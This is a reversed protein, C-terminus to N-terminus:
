AKRKRGGRTSKGASTKGPSATEADRFYSLAIILSQVLSISGAIPRFRHIDADDVTFYVSGHKALPSSPVDTITLTPIGRIHADHVVEVVSPTYEAFAVAVLLDNPGITAVQQPVMGGVNDLLHCPIELRMLGYAFYAAVPFARRQGIVYVQEAASLMDLAERLREGSVTEKLRELCLVSADCFEHLIALPDDGAAAELQNRHQYIRERYVPAGEILRLKFVKQMDSFGTYGFEKAFRILTSPQVGATAALNVVTELAFTNPDDLALQAIRQLHPSLSDYSEHIGHRLSDFSAPAGQARNM